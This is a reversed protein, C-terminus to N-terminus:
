YNAWGRLLPNICTILMYANGGKGSGSKVIGRIKDLLRKVSKKSPKTLLTKGYRRINFGLFDFGEEIHTIAAKEESLALGREALFSQVM